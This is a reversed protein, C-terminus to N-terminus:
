RPKLDLEIAKGERFSQEAALCVAISAQAEEPSLISRGAKFGELAARLNEELEFVEGSKPITVTEPEGGARQVKLEFEPHLTRDRAGSWWTRVAGTEGAVELLTHHEFGSLCQNLTAVSGDDWQLTAIFNDTLGSEQGTGFAHVRAPPGNEQAYWLVLDFFHVLEELIWSGVKAADYRWGGSGQRFKNRFLSFHQYRIKGLEGRAFFDRVLGWQRSVRLEHNLAVLKGTRQAATIVAGCEALTLGLPKEQFVHVGATLAAITFEAHIHNPVTVDVVEFGGAALMGSYDRFRRATPLLETAAKESAESHCYVSVVTAGDITDIARAHMQGWAGFGALAIRSTTSNM